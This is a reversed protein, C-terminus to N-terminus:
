RQVRIEDVGVVFGSSADVKSGLVRIQYEHEGSALGAVGHIVARRTVESAYLDVMQWEGADVKIEARGRDPGKTGLWEFGVGETTLRLLSGAKSAIQEDSDRNGAIGEPPFETQWGDDQVLECHNGNMVDLYGSTDGSRVARLDDLYRTGEQLTPVIGPGGEDLENWNYVLMLAPNSVAEPHASVWDFSRQLHSRWDRRTPQDIWYGYEKRPRPDAMPTLGLVTDVDKNPGWNREDKQAQAAWCHGDGSPRAGSPGYSTMADLRLTRVSDLNMNVNVYYAPPLGAEEIAQGLQALRAEPLKNSHFLMVVPRGGNVTVYQPDAFLRTLQPLYTDEYHSWGLDPWALWEAQLIVTFKIRGHNPSALYHNFPEQIQAQPEGQEPYWVFSWYDVGADAAYAIEREVIDQEVDEELGALYWGYFPERHEYQGYLSRAVWGLADNGKVWADWRIVGMLPPEAPPRPRQSEPTVEVRGGCALVCLCSALALAGARRSRESVTGDYSWWRALVDRGRRPRSSLM